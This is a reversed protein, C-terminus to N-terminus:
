RGELVGLLKPMPSSCTSCRLALLWSGEADVGEFGELEALDAGDRDTVDLEWTTEAILDLDLFNAELDEASMDPYHGLTLRDLKYLAQEEGLGDVTLASWDVQFPQGLPVELPEHSTLDADIVFQSAENWFSAETDTASDSPEIFMLKRYQPPAGDAETLLVVMWAGTGPEFYQEVDIDTGLMTFESLAASTIGGDLELRVFLSVDAQPIQDVAVAAALDQETLQGFVTVYATTLDTTPDLPHGLMDTTLGDWSLTPDSLTMLPVSGIDLSPVYSFTHSDDIDLTGSFEFPDASDGPAPGDKGTCGVSLLLV